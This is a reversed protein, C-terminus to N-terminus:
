QEGGSALETLKSLIKQIKPIISSRDDTQLYRQHANALRAENINNEYIASQKDTEFPGQYIGTFHNSFFIPLCHSYIIIVHM